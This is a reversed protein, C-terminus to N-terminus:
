HEGMEERSPTAERYDSTSGDLESDEDSDLQINGKEAADFTTMAKLCLVPTANFNKLFTHKRIM